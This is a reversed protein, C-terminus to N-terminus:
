LMPFITSAVHGNTFFACSFALCCASCPLHTYSVPCLSVVVKKIYAASITGQDFHVALSSYAPQIEIVGPLGLKDLRDCLDLVADNTEESIDDSLKVSLASDGLQAFELSQDDM